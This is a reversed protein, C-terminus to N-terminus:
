ANGKVKPGTKKLYWLIAADAAPFVALYALLVQEPAFAAELFTSGIVAYAGFFAPVIGGVTVFALGLVSQRAAHKRVKERQLATLQDALRRLGETKGREFAFALHAAARRAHVSDVRAGMAALARPFSHGRRVEALVRSFERGAEGYGAASELAREFPSDLSLETALTRLAFPLDAEVLEARERARRAPYGSLSALALAFAAAAAAAAIMGGIGLALAAAAAALACVTSSVLSFGLWEGAATKM